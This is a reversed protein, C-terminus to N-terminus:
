RPEQPLDPATVTGREYDIRQDLDLQFTGHLAVNSWFLPTLGRLACRSWATARGRGGARGGLHVFAGARGRGPRWVSGAQVWRVIIV